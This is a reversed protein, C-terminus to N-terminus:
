ASAAALAAAAIEGEPDGPEVFKRWVDVRGMGVGRGSLGALTSSKPTDTGRSRYGKRGRSSHSGYSDEDGYENPDREVIIGRMDYLRDTMALPPGSPMLPPPMGMPPPMITTSMHPPGPPPPPAPAEMIPGPGQRSDSFRDALRAEMSGGRFGRAKSVGAVYGRASNSRGFAPRGPPGEPVGRRYHDNMYHGANNGIGVIDGVGGMPDYVDYDDGFAHMRRTAAEDSSAKPRRYPADEDYQRPRPRARPSERVERRSTSDDPFGNRQERRSVPTPVNMDELQDDSDYNFWPCDCNKWKAACVM